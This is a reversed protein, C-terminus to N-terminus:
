VDIKTEQIYMPCSSIDMMMDLSEDFAGVQKFGFKTYYNIARINIKRVGGQLIMRTKGSHIAYSLAYQIMISGVGASQYSDAVSPAYKCDKQEDLSINYKQYRKIDGESIGLTLIVYAIIKNRNKENAEAIIRIFKPDPTNKCLLSATQRDFAHPSFLSTTKESLNLFYEVLGDEDDQSLLRVKIEEGTKIVGIYPKDYEM